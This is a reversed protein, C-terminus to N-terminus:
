RACLPGIEIECTVQSTMCKTFLAQGPSDGFCSAACRELAGAGSGPAIAQNVRPEELGGGPGLERMHRAIELAEIPAERLVEVIGGAVRPM